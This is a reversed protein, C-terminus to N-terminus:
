SCEARDMLLVIPKIPETWKMDDVRLGNLFMGKVM